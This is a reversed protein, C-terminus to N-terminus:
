NSNTQWCHPPRLDETFRRDYRCNIYYINSFFRLKKPLFLEVFASNKSLFNRRGCIRFLLFVLFFITPLSDWVRTRLKATWREVVVADWGERVLASFIPDIFLVSFIKKSNRSFNNFLIQLYWQHSLRPLNQHGQSWYKQWFYDFVYFNIKKLGGCKRLYVSGTNAGNKQCKSFFWFRRWIQFFSEFHPPEWLSIRTPTPRLRQPVFFLWTKEIHFAKTRKFLM